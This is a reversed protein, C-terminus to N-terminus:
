GMAAATAFDRQLRQAAYAQAERAKQLVAAAGFFEHTVGEYERREVPVGARQLADELKAGDSRLPDIRANIITVPPLGELRADVLNIRPDKLDEPSRAVHDMFWQMMARNLPKAIANELYSETNLSNQAIPYVSLVHCPPPLGADRAAIATAVALNGGASEGALAIRNPDAGLSQANALTWRYAALADDWQAPFKHEPAQRYDISVVVAQAQKSLGRAGGDYVDKDAIVWGGGHFYLVVPFPGNGEPTYIRAPIQGAAGDILTDQSRVGPVLDEPRTSRGQQRLLEMVGDTPTPQRRAEEPSLKEIAKPGLSEWAKALAQMDDDARIAAVAHSVANIIPNPQGDDSRDNDYKSM